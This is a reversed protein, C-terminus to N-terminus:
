CVLFRTLGPGQVRGAEEAEWPGEIASMSGPFPEGTCEKGGRTGRWPCMTVMRPGRKARGVTMMVVQTPALSHHSGSGAQAERQLKRSTARKKEARAGAGASARGVDLNGHAAEIDLVAGRPGSQDSPGSRDLQEAAEATGSPAVFELDPPAEENRLEALTNSFSQTAPGQSQGQGPYHLTPASDTVQPNSSLLGSIRNPLVRAATGDVPTAKSPGAIKHSPTHPRLSERPSQLHKGHALSATEGGGCDTDTASRDTACSYEECSRCEDVAQLGEEPLVAPVFKPPANAQGQLHHKPGMGPQIGQMSLRALSDSTNDM